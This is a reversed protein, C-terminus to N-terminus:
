HFYLIKRNEAKDPHNFPNYNNPSQPMGALLAAEPLTLDKLPKGFYVDSATAIGITRESMFVKNVYLEFIEEKTYKRELQIALWAEQAKRSITKDATLFYNKM